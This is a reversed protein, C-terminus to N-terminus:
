YSGDYYDYGGWGSDIVPDTKDGYTLGNVQIPEIAHGDMSTQQSRLYGFAVQWYKQSQEIFDKEELDIAHVAALIAREQEIPIYDYVSTIYPHQVRYLIRAWAAPKGIRIRRYKPNVETPHYQGILTMDNSRGYDYAYLSIYGQTIPKEIHYIAKVFTPDEVADLFFTSTSTNGTTTYSILGATSTTNIAQQQTPYLQIDASDILRVYYTTGAVLNPDLIDGTSARPIVATGTEFIANTLVVTNSAKPTVGRQVLLNMQGVPLSTLSVLSGGSYVQIYSGVIQITYDTNPALGTPLSGGSATSFQVTEGNQLYQLSNLAIYNKYISPNVSQQLAFYGQGTGLSTVTVLSTLGSDSYVQATTNTLKKLYFQTVGNDIAPSTIPLLYDTGFYIGTGSPVSAFNGSWTNTFAVSFARTIDLYLQGSGVSTLTLPSYDDNFLTFRGGSAPVEARYTAGEQLPAPLTGTSSFSVFVGTSPTVTVAPATGYNTGTSVVTVQSLVGNAITCSATATTGSAPPSLAIIPPATYATGANTIFIGTVIGSSNIAAVATAGTGTTDGSANTFTVTPAITYGTGANTISILNVAGNSISATAVPATQAGTPTAFTIAPPVTYGSGGNVIQYQTVFSYSVVATAAAGSGGGGTISITPASIYGSGPQDLVISIVKGADVGTVTGIVAHATAGYGGGGSITVTPASTYSSGQATQTISTVSGSVVAQVSAGSGAATPLNTFGPATIQSTSGTIATAPILKTLINQGSGATTLLIPNNGTATDAASTHLIITTSDVVQVYYNQAAILPQPLTGGNTSAQVVDGTQFLHPANFALKTIPAIPYRIQITFGSSSGNLYIPNIGNLADSLSAFIQLNTSDLANAFYTVGSTLPAPLTGSFVVENGKSVTILPASSLLVSTVPNATRTDTLTLTGANAISSLNIPYEGQQAYLPDNYLQITTPNVVGVYYQNSLTLGTPVTGTSSTLVVPEGSSLQHASTSTFKNFPAIAASRTVITNGDPTITGLNFDSLSHVQVILGDVGTGDVTQSRLPRNNNDTGVLRITSGIDADTEAVAIVQSPQKIDMQTAVFGRDDWCWGVTNYMGGKNVNYQFFRGRFYLPSGDINVALPVEIGRPLTVTCGDWGTCVDVEAQTHFWHGSEMLAQVAQTLKRFVKSQDTTGLIESAEDFIQSVFM